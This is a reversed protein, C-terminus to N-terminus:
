DHNPNEQNAVPAVPAGVAGELQAVAVAYDTRARETGIRVELLVREADLLDLANLTGASYGAEASSLSQRAQVTLVNTFLDLRDRILPIRTTLDGLAQEIDTVVQRRSETAALRRATAEEVGAALRERHVPLNIAATLGLIDQGNDQPPNARGAADSREGVLAYNLGVTVDPDYAKEALRIRKEAAQIQAAAAAVEPRQSVALPELSDFAPDIKGLDPLGTVRLPTTEPQARLANLSALLAARRTEIDLLRTDDRTIEAQIKVVGEEHGVGSAYRARALEEYHGLTMRDSGVVKAYADLFALEYYQRRAETVLQLREAEVRAEAAAAEALAAQERLRLKGFWPFHQSLSLAAQQPGVRTQPSMLFATVGAVPDPLARVQPAKAAAARAEATLMALKPNHELVDAVLLKLQPDAIAAAVAGSPSAQTDAAVEATVTHDPSPSPAEATARGALLLTVGLFALLKREYM